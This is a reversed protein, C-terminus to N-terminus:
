GIINYAPIIRIILVQRATKAQKKVQMAM